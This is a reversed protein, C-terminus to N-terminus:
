RERTPNPYSVEKLVADGVSKEWGPKTTGVNRHTQEMRTNEVPNLVLPPRDYIMTNLTVFMPQGKRYQKSNNNTVAVEHFGDSTTRHNLPFM